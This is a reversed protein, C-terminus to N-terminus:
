FKYTAGIKGGSVVNGGGLELNIGWQESFFYRGGVQAGLSLNDHSSRYGLNIGAYFDWESPMELITNFHYNGNASLGLYGNNNESWFVFEGGVTIDQHVGFDLGVFLPIGSNSFGAGLNLQKGGKGLPAQAMSAFVLVLGTLTLYIKRM